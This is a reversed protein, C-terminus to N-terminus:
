AAAGGTELFGVAREAERVVPDAIAAAREAGAALVGDVTAPDKRLRRIEDGIPLIAAEVAGTLEAKLRAFDWGECERLAAELDRGTLAALLRVLNEAEPRGALGAAEGPLPHPDTKARRIKRAISDADDTLDIRSMDSADSKSMKRTGDRLSMVRASQAPIMPEPLPFFDPVGYDLNFKQAIDRVLEVHQKQDAGVPVRTARYALIDAAQLLPYTYLGVSAGERNRGAKDKFQTMRNLWGVRAVCNLLWALQAHARVRSQSFLISRAPDLGCALFAAVIERTAARLEGPDQPLTIAHMDVVCYICAHREQMRVWERLAGLWNGLHLAGTPQVGSFVRGSSVTM